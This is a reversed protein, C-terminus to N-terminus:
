HRNILSLSRDAALAEDGPAAEDGEEVQYIPRHATL